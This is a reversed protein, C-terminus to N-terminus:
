SKLVGAPQTPGALDGPRMAALWGGFAAHLAQPPAGQQTAAFTTFGQQLHLAKLVTRLDQDPALPASALGSSRVKWYVFGILGM